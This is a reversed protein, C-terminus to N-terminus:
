RLSVGLWEMPVPESVSLFARESHVIDQVAKNRAMVLVQRDIEPGFDIDIIKDRWFLPLDEIMYKYDAGKADVTFYNALVPNIHIWGDKRQERCFSIKIENNFFGDPVCLPVCRNIDATGGPMYPSKSTDFHRCYGDFHRCLERCPITTVLSLDINIHIYEKGKGALNGDTRILFVDDGYEHSFWWHKLVAKSVIQISDINVWDVEFYEKCRGLVPYQKGYNAHCLMEPWHSVYCAVHNTGNKILEKLRRECANLVDLDYDIFIHDDNCSFWVLEDQCAFVEEMSQKWKSQKDIRFEYNSLNEPFLRNIYENLEKRRDKYCEDLECYIIVKSWPIVSLSSLSYKFVDLRDQRPLNGRNYNTAFNKTIFVNIFLIM